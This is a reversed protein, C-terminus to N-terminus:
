INEAIHAISWGGGVIYLIYVIVFRVGCKGTCFFEQHLWCSVGLSVCSFAYPLLFQKQSIFELEQEM